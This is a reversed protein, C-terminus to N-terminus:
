IHLLLSRVGDALFLANIPLDYIQFHAALAPFAASSWSADNDNIGHIFLVPDPHYVSKGDQVDPKWKFIRSSQGFVAIALLFAFALSNITKM